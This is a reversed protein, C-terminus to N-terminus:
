VVHIAHPSLRVEFSHMCNFPPPPPPQAAVLAVLACVLAFTKMTRASDRFNFEACVHLPVYGSTCTKTKMDVRTRARVHTRSQLRLVCNALHM